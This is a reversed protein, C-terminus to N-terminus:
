PLTVRATGGVPVDVEALVAGSKADVIQAPGAPVLALTLPKGDKSRFRTTFTAGKEFRRVHALLGRALAPGDVDLEGTAVDLSWRNEGSLLDLEVELRADREDSGAALLTLPVRGLEAVPIRFSGDRAVPEERARWADEGPPVLSATWSRMDSDAISFHGVLVVGPANRADLDLTTTSGDVIEFATLTPDTPPGLVEQTRSRLDRSTRRM